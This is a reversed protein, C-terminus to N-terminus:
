VEGAIDDSEDKIESLSDDDDDKKVRKAGNSVGNAQESKSNAVRM